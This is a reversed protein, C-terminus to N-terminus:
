PTPKAPLMVTFTSGSDLESEVSVHGGHAEVAHKVIALGIGSGARGARSQDAKYFREFIRPLAASDIGIGTDSVKLVVEGDRGEASITVSGGEPTFKVANQV